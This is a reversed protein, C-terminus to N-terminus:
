VRVGRFQFVIVMAVPLSYADGFEITLMSCIYKETGRSKM